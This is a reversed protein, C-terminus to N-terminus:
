RETKEAKDETKEKSEKKELEEKELEKEYERCEEQSIKGDHDKDKAKFVQEAKQLKTEAGAKKSQGDQAFAAPCGISLALGLVALIKWM